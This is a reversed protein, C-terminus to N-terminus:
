YNSLFEFFKIKNNYIDVYNNKYILKKDILKKQLLSQQITDTTDLYTINPKKLNRSVFYRHRNFLRNDIDKTMYKSIYGVIKKIDNNLTDVKTFGCNWYKIHKFKKNDEQSYILDSDIPINTLLHYHVAGRKQFEPIGIYMFDKFVRKISDIFNRFKKNAIKIDTINDKITLTIFTKWERANAKAYRQCQLKSRNINKIEIKDIYNDKYNNEKILNDTDELIYLKSVNNHKEVNNNKVKQNSVYLQIYDGCDIVKVNYNYKNTTLILSSDLLADHKVFDKLHKKQKDILKQEEKSKDKKSCELMEDFCQCFAQINKHECSIKDNLYNNSYKEVFMTKM